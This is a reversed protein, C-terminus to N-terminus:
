FPIVGESPLAHEDWVGHIAPSAKPWLTSCIEQLLSSEQPWCEADCLGCRSPGGIPHPCADTGSLDELAAWRSGAGYSRMLEARMEPDIGGEMECILELMGETLVQM